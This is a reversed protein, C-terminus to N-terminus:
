AFDGGAITVRLLGSSGTQNAGSSQKLEITAGNLRIDLLANNQKSLVFYQDNFTKYVMMVATYVGLYQMSASIYFVTGSGYSSLSQGSSVWTGSAGFTPTVNVLLKGRFGGSGNIVFAEQGNPRFIVGGTNLSGTFFLTGYSGASYHSIENVWSATYTSTRKFSMSNLVNLQQTTDNTGIGVNGSSDVTLAATGGSIGASGYKLEIAPNAASTLSLTGAPNTYIDAVNGTASDTDQNFFGIGAFNNQGAINASYVGIANEPWNSAIANFRATSHTGGVSVIGSSTIRMRETPTASNTGHGFVLAGSGDNFIRSDIGGDRVNLLIESASGLDSNIQLKSDATIQGNVDLLANPSATGIGVNGGTNIYCDAGGSIFRVIQTSGDTDYLDFLSQASGSTDGLRAILGRDASIRLHPFDNTGAGNIHLKSDPTTTGIGLNGSTRFAFLVDSTLLANNDGKSIYLGPGDDAHVIINRTDTTNTRFKIGAKNAGTAGLHLLQNPSATGIGVNSNAAVVFANAGVTIESLTGTNGAIGSLNVKTTM